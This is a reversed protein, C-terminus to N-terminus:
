QVTNVTFLLFIFLSIWLIGPIVLKRRRRFRGSKQRIMFFGAEKENIMLFECVRGSRGIM